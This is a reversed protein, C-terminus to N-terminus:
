IGGQEQQKAQEYEPTTPEEVTIQLEDEFKDFYLKVNTILYTIFTNRDEENALSDFSDLIYQQIKKNTAFAMNRGTEDQGEIGFAEEESPQDDDEVPIMKEPDADSDSIDVEIEDLLSLEESLELDTELADTEEPGQLVMSDEGAPQANVVAPILSDKIAKLM